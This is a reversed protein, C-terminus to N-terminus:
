GFRILSGAHRQTKGSAGRVYRHLGARRIVSRVAQRMTAAVTLEVLAAASAVFFTTAAPLHALPPAIIDREFRAAAYPMMRVWVIVMVVDEASWPHAMDSWPPRHHMLWRTRPGPPHAWPSLLRALAKAVAEEPAALPKPQVPSSPVLM